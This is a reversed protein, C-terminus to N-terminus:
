SVERLYSEIASNVASCLKESSRLVATRLNEAPIDAPQTCRLASDNKLLEEAEGSYCYYVDLTGDALMAAARASNDCYIRGNDGAAAAITKKAEDFLEASAGTVLGACDSVATMSIDGRHVCYVLKEAFPINGIFRSDLGGSEPYPFLAIDALDNELMTLAGGSDSPVIVLEAGIDEAIYEALETMRSNGSDAACRLKGAPLMPKEVSCGGLALILAACLPVIHRRTM